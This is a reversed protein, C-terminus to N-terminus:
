VSIMNRFGPLGSVERRLRRSTCFARVGDLTYRRWLRRPEKLVRVLWNLRLPYAWRPYYREQGVQDIYGGCTLIISGASLSTISAAVRNQLNPGLGVLVLHPKLGAVYYNLDEGVLLGDYGDMGMFECDPHNLELQRIALELQAPKSGILLVRMIEQDALLRPIILDASSRNVGGLIHCLLLGDIGVFDFPELEALGNDLSVLASYHNLWTMTTSKTGRSRRLEECLADLYAEDVSEIM